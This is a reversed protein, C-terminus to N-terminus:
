YFIKNTYIDYIYINGDVQADGSDDEPMPEDVDMDTTLSLRVDEMPLPFSIRTSEATPPDPLIDTSSKALSCDACRWNLQIRDTFM